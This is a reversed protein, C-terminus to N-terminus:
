SPTALAVLWAGVEILLVSLGVRFVVFLMRLQRANRRYSNARHLALDRHILELPVLDPEVYEEIVDTANASFEWDTRPWLVALVCLGVLVFAVIAVVAAVEIPDALVRGGFFSTTIAAAAILVGARSRLETVTREQGDLSRGAEEFALAYAPARLHLEEKTLGLDILPDEESV